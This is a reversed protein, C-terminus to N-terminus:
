PDPGGDPSPFVYVDIFGPDRKPYDLRFRRKEPTGLRRELESVYARLRGEDFDGRWRRHVLLWTRGDDPDVEAPKPAWQLDPPAHHNVYFRFRAGDGGDDILNPAHAVEGVANYVVWRDRRPATEAAVDRLAGRCQVDSGVKYPRFIDRVTGALCLFALLYATVRPIHVAWRRSRSLWVAITLVGHGSLLCIAPAMYLMTRASGGYPYARLAAAAFAPVAPALLLGLLRRRGRWMGAAGVLVLLFTLSSGGSRDGVPFAMMRGTHIRLFWWPLRWPRSIPPWTFDWMVWGSVERAVAQKPLIALWAMVGFSATLAAACAACALLARRSRRRAADWLLVLGMGAAVFVCPFSLWVGVVATTTLVAWRGTRGPRELVRWTLLMLAVSLLLDVTYPKVECGHRVVYFSAAMAGTALLAARGSLVRRALRAFLVLGAAGALLPVIRLVWEDYGFARAMVLEAWLFAPPAFQEYELEGMLGLYGRTLLNQLLFAEDNFYPFCLAYRVGRWLLGLALLM